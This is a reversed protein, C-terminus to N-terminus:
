GDIFGFYIQALECLLIMHNAFIDKNVPNLDSWITKFELVKGLMEGGEKYKSLEDDYSKNLFFDENEKYNKIENKYQLVEAVFIGIFKYKNDKNRIGIRVWKINDGIISHPSVKALSEAMFLLQNNFDEVVQEKDVNM